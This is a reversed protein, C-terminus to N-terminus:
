LRSLRVSDVIQRRASGANVQNKKKKKQSICLTHIGICMKEFAHTFTLVSIENPLAIWFHLTVM